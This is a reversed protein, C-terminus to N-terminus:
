TARWCPDCYRIPEETLPGKTKGEYDFEEHWKVTERSLYAVRRQGESDTKGRRIIAQSM